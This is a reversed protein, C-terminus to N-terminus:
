GPAGAVLAIADIELRAGKPLGSVEVAVRAPPASGSFYEAYVENVVAYDAMSALYLTVKVVQDMSAGAAELVARLNDMARRTQTWVDGAAVVNGTKPDLPIQGSCFVWAGARIAQSYPGIAAPAGDTAIVKREMGDM